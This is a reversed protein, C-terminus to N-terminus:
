QWSFEFAITIPSTPSAAPTAGTAVANVKTAGAKRLAVPVFGEVCAAFWAALFAPIDHQRADCRKDGAMTAEASGFEFYRLAAKPLRTAVTSPSLVGLLLRHVGRLDREALWRANDRVLEYHPKGLAQAVAASLPVIPMADFALSPIFMQSFFTALEPELVRRVAAIGGPFIADWFDVAGQYLLGRARFPSTGVPFPLPTVPYSPLPLRLAAKSAAEHIARM